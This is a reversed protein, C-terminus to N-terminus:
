TTALLLDEGTSPRLGDPRGAFYRNALVSSAVHEVDTLGADHAMAVDIDVMNPVHRNRTLNPGAPMLQEYTAAQM